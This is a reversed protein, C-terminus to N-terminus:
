ARNPGRLIVGYYPAAQPPPRDPKLTYLSAREREGGGGWGGEGGRGNKHKKKILMIRLRFWRNAQKKSANQAASSRLTDGREKCKVCSIFVSLLRGFILARAPVACACGEIKRSRGRSTRRAAMEGYWICRQIKTSRLFINLRLM